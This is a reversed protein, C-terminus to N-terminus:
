KLTEYNCKHAKQSIQIFKQQKLYEYKLLQLPAAINGGIDFDFRCRSINHNQNMSQCYFVEKPYIYIYVCVYVCIICDSYVNLYFLNCKM